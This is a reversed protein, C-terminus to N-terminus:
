ATGADFGDEVSRRPRGVTGWTDEL